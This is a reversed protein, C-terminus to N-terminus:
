KATDSCLCMSCVNYGYWRNGCISCFSVSDSIVHIDKLDEGFEVEMRKQIKNCTKRVKEEQEKLDELKQNYFFNNKPTAIIRFNHEKTIKM